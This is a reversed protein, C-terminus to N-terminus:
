KFCRHKGYMVFWILICIILYVDVSLLDHYKPETLLVSMKLDLLVLSLFTTYVAVYVVGRNAKHVEETTCILITTYSKWLM